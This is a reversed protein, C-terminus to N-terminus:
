KKPTKLVAIGRHIQVEGSWYKNKYKKSLEKAYWEAPKKGLLIVFKLKNMVTVQLGRKSYIAYLHKM